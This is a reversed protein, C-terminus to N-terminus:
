VLISDVNLNLVIESIDCAYEATRRISEIILRLNPANEIETQAYAVAEKELESIETISAIITEALNYDQRFLSEMSTTFMKTATCSMAEVKEEIEKSIQQKLALM